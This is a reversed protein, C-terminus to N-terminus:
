SNSSTSGINFYERLKAIVKITAVNKAVGLKERIHTMHFNVTGYDICLMDAIDKRSNLDVMLMGIEEERKTLRIM